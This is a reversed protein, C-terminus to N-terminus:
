NIKLQNKILEFWKFTIFVHKRFFKMTVNSLPFIYNLDLKYNFPVKPCM